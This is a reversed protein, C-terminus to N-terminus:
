QNNQEQYYLKIPYENTELFSIVGLIIQTDGKFIKMQGTSPEVWVNLINDFDDM